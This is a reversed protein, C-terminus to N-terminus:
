KYQTYFVKGEPRGSQAPKPFIGHNPNKSILWNMVRHHHTQESSSPPVPFKEEPPPNWVGRKIPTSLAYSWM